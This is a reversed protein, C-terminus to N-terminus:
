AEFFRDFGRAKLGDKLVRDETWLRGDLHLTLAVYATDGPDVDRCLRRAEIWHGLPIRTENVFELRALLRHVAALFEVEPLGTAHALRARHRFLELMLFQPSVLMVEPVSPVREHLDGRNSVLSKFALTADVIVVSSNV